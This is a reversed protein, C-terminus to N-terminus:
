EVTFATGKTVKRPSSGCDSGEDKKTGSSAKKSPTSPPTAGEAKCKKPSAVPKTPVAGDNNPEDDTMHERKPPM